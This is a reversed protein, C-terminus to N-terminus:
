DGFIPAVTKALDRTGSIINSFQVLSVGVIIKTLWDSVQELNTNELFPRRSGSNGSTASTLARPIGFLFGTLGGLLVSAMSMMIASAFASWTNSPLFAFYISIAGFQAVLLGALSSLTFWNILKETRRRADIQEQAYTRSTANSIM